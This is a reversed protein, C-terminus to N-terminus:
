YEKLILVGQISSGLRRVRSHSDKEGEEGQGLISGSIDGDRVEEGRGLRSGSIDGDRVEEGRGLRRESIDGDRVERGSGDKIQSFLAGM